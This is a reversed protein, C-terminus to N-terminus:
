RLISQLKRRCAVQIIETGDPFAVQVPEDSIEKKGTGLEDARGIGFTWVTGNTKLM